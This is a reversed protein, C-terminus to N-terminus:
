LSFLAGPGEEQPPLLCLGGSGAGAGAGASMRLRVRARPRPPTRPMHNSFGTVVLEPAEFSM